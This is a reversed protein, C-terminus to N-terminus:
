CYSSSFSCYKLRNPPFVSNCNGSLRCNLTEPATPGGFGWYELAPTHVGDTQLASGPSAGGAGVELTRVDPGVVLCRLPEGLGGSYQGTEGVGQGMRRDQKEGQFIGNRATGCGSM